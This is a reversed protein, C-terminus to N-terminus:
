ETQPTQSWQFYLNAPGDGDYLLSNLPAIFLANQALINAKPNTKNIAMVVTNTTVTLGNSTLRNYKASRAPTTITPNIVLVLVPSTTETTLIKIVQNVWVPLKYGRLM